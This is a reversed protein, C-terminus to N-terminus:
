SNRGAHIKNGFIVESSIASQKTKHTLRSTLEPFLKKNVCNM